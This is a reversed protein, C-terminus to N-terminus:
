SRSPKGSGNQAQQVVEEAELRALDLIYSLTHLRHRRVLGALEGTLSAVYAAAHEPNGLPVPSVALTGVTSPKPRAVRCDRTLRLREERAEIRVAIRVSKNLILHQGDARMPQLRVNRSSLHVLSWIVKATTGSKVPSPENGM